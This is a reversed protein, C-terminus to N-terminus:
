QPKRTGSYLPNQVLAPNRNLVDDPIPMVYMPDRAELRFVQVTTENPTYIHEIAPMGYRRLDFWRHLEERFLERRREQRCMRLLEDAPKIDWAKFSAMDIRYSRLANLSKLAEAAAGADGRTKYLQIYAEARNLYAESTRWGNAFYSDQSKYTNTIKQQGLEVPIYQKMFPPIVAIGIQKRLDDDEFSHYLNYSVEYGITFPFNLQELPSGYAFITEENNIGALPHTEPDPDGWTNLNMLMSRQRLVADAHAICKEWNEMYLYVRSALLHAAVHSIHYTEVSKKYKDLLRTAQELDQTIQEYVEKVTNRALFVDSLDATIRIPIGPSKDPTTTSDNYPKAYINVLMFHYFARLTYAQGKLIDKEEQSGVSNDVGGLTVNVGLLLRYYEGWTNTKYGYGEAAMLRDFNTQWQFIGAAAPPRPDQMVPGSYCQVDDDLYCMWPQLFINRGPYGETFLLNGFDRTSKPTIDTQSYEQLFKKCSTMGLAVIIIVLLKKM